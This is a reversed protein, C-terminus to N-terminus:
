AVLCKEPFSLNQQVEIFMEEYVAGWPFMKSNKRRSVRLVNQIYFKVCRHICDPGNKGFYPCKKRTEFLAPSAQGRVEVLQTGAELTKYKRLWFTFSIM